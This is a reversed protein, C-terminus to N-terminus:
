QKMYVKTNFQIGQQNRLDNMVDNTSSSILRSVTICYSINILITNFSQQLTNQRFLMLRNFVVSNSHMHNFKSLFSSPQISLTKLKKSPPTHSSQQEEELLDFTPIAQKEIFDVMDM